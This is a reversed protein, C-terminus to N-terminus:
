NDRRVGNVFVHAVHTFFIQDEDESSLADDDIALVVVYKNTSLIDNYIETFQEENDTFELYSERELSHFWEDLNDSPITSFYKDDVSSFSIGGRGPAYDGSIIIMDNGKTPVIIGRPYSM